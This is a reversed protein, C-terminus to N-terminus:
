PRLEVRGVFAACPWNLAVDADIWIADFPRAAEPVEVRHPVLHDPSPGNPAMTAVGVERDSRRFGVRWEAGGSVHLVVAPASSPSPLKVALGGAQASCGSSDWWYGPTPVPAALASLAVERRPPNRYETALYDALGDDFQGTWLGVMNRWRTASWIPDRAVSCVADHFRALGAHPIRNEGAVLSELYGAPIRRYFHGIRWNRPDGVPLRALLPDLLWPDVIHVAPGSLYGLWGVVGYVTFSHEVGNARLLEGVTGPESWMPAPALLGYNPHRPLQEDVIGDPPITEPPVAALVPTAAEPVGPVLTLAATAALTALAPRPWTFQPVRTLIGVALLFPPVLFRGLMYDGGVKVVYLSYALAGIALCRQGPRQLGIAIGLVIAVPTVPDDVLSRQWYRLGQAALDIAPVGPAFAKAYATIPFPTGYYVTAFLLWLALPALGLALARAATGRPVALAAALLTPGTLILLDLRAVGCLGCVLAVARLRREPEPLRWALLLLAALVYILATELGSTAFSTWARSGLLLGLLVAIGVATAPLRWLLAVAVGSLCLGAVQATIPHDGTLVRLGAMALMWLPSTFSQVRDGANWVPGHGQVFNEVARFLIFADDSLWSLRLAAGFLAVALAGCLIAWARSM